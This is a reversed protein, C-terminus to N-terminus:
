SGIVQVAAWMSAPIDGRRIADLQVARLADAPAMGAALKEHLRPFFVAASEDSIPWLTAVASPVGASLFGHAVSIVGEAARGQGRATSCGALVVIATNTLRLKALEAVGVRREDGHNRLVISAPEYGRPDGVAHGGFHIVDAAPARETLEDWQSSQEDIRLATRYSGLIRKAELEAYRLNGANATSASATVVLASRPQSTRLRRENAVVFTAASPAVVIAHHRLLYDGRADVLAGFPVTATVDDPVFVVTSAGAIRSAIPAILHKYISAGLRMAESSDDKQLARTFAGANDALADRAVEARVAHVGTADAVFIVLSAPLTAYEVIVTQPALARVNVDPSAGYSDLLSRARAKETFRFASEHDNAIMALDVAEEFLEEAAHFAGWRAAGAPLSERHREMQQIGREVDDLAGALNETRRRARARLLLLGPITSPHGLTSEYDIARTLLADATAPATSRLMAVSRWEMVRLMAQYSSDEVRSATLRAEAFDERVGRPDDLRDRVVARLLLANALEVDNELRRVVDVYVTLFSSAMHWDRRVIAAEVISWVTREYIENARIGPESLSALRNKWAADADGTRDYVAALLRRVNAVNGTEGISEFLAASEEFLTIAAGWEGRANRCNALQWLMFGRYAPFEAPTTALIQDYEKEAEDRRGQVYVCNAAWLQAPIAMPSGAQRFVAAARRLLPEAEEPRSKQFAKMGKAFDAHAGALMARRDGARDIAAVGGQLTREGGSAIVNGLQRAVNLHRAAEREDGRLTADGWRGLVDVVGKARAGFHDRAYIAAAAAPDRGIRDYDADLVELFPREPVLADLHQRAEDAWGTGSDIALYHSWAARADIRLGLRELILARNFLAEARDPEISLARDAATLANALFDHADYRVAAEHYAAALDNWVAPQNAVSAKELAAVAHRPDGTLLEFLGKRQQQADSSDGRTRGTGQATAATPAVFPVWALGSVRAEVPRTRLLSAPLLTAASVQSGSSKTRLPLTSVGAIAVALLPACALVLRRHARPLLPEGSM